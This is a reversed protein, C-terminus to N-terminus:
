EVTLSAAGLDDRETADVRGDDIRYIRRSTTGWDVAIFPQRVVM